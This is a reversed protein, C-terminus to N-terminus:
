KEPPLHKQSTAIQHLDQEHYDNALMIASFMDGCEDFAFDV